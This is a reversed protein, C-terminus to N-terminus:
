MSSKVMLANRIGKVDSKKKLLTQQKKSYIHRMCNKRFFIRTIYQRCFYNVQTPIIIKFEM